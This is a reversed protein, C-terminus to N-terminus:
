REPSKSRSKKKKPATAPQHYTQEKSKQISKQWEVMSKKQQFTPRQAASRDLESAKQDVLAGIKSINIDSATWSDRPIGSIGFSIVTEIAARCTEKADKYAQYAAAKQAKKGKKWFPLRDAQYYDSWAKEVSEKAKKLDTFATRLKDGPAVTRNFEKPPNQPENQSLDPENKTQTPTSVEPAAQETVPSKSAQPLAFRHAYTDMMSLARDPDPFRVVRVNSGDKDRLLMPVSHESIALKLEKVLPEIKVGEFELVELRRNNERIVLNKRKITEAESGKGFHHEPIYAPKEFKVGWRETMLQKLDTKQEHLWQKSKFKPDKVTFPEKLEGKKHVPPLVNGDPDRARDAKRRAVNGEATLYVDRDWRGPEAIKLRESYIIHVHLNTRKKNWHVAWQFDRNEPFLSKAIASIRFNLEEKPLKYWENPLSIILERGENQRVNTKHQKAEFDIYPQWDVSESKTVIEEQRGPDSMYAARGGISPLKTARAFDKM